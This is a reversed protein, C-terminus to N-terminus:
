VQIIQIGTLQLDNLAQSIDVATASEVTVLLHQDSTRSFGGKLKYQMTLDEPTGGADLSKLPAEVVTVKTVKNADAIKIRATGSTIQTNTNDAVVLYLTDGSRFAVAMGKPVTYDVIESDVDAISDATEVGTTTLTLTFPLKLIGKLSM